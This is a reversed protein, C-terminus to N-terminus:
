DEAGQAAQCSPCRMGSVKKADDKAITWNAFDPHNSAPVPRGCGACRSLDPPVAM